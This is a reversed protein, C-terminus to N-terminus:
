LGEPVEELDIGEALLKERIRRGLEIAVGRVYEELIYKQAKPHLVFMNGCWFGVVRDLEMIIQEVKKPQLDHIRCFHKIEIYKARGRPKRYGWEREFVYASKAPNLFLYKPHHKINPM